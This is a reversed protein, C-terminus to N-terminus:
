FEKKEAYENMFPRIDYRGVNINKFFPPFDGFIERIKEPVEIDCPVYRFLIGSKINELLREDRLPMKYPFSESRHQKGLNDTKYNNWCGIEYM